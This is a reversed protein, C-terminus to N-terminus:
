RRFTISMAINNDYDAGIQWHRYIAGSSGGRVGDQVICGDHHLIEKLSVSKFEHGYSGGLGIQYAYLNSWQEVKSYYPLRDDDEVGSKEPDGLPLVLQLFFLFDKKNLVHRGMGLKKLKDVDLCGLRSEPFLNDDSIGNRHMNPSTENDKISDSNDSGISTDTSTLPTDESLNSFWGQYFFEWGDIVRKGERNKEVPQCGTPLCHHKYVTNNHEKKFVPRYCFSSWGGPNDVLKFEPENRSEDPPPDKWDRPTEHVSLGPTGFINRVVDMQVMNKDSLEIDENSDQDAISALKFLRALHLEEDIDNVEEAECDSDCEVGTENKEENADIM